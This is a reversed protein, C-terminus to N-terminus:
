LGKARHWLRTMILVSFLITGVGMIALVWTRWGPTEGTVPLSKAAYSSATRTGSLNDASLSVTNIPEGSPDTAITFISFEFTEGAELRDLTLKVQQGNIEVLGRSKEVRDIHLGQPVDDIFVLNIGPDKGQNAVTIIWQIQNTSGAQGQIVFGLKRLDPVFENGESSPNNTSSIFSANSSIQDDNDKSNAEPTKTTYGAQVMGSVIGVRLSPKPQLNAAPRKIVVEISSETQAPVTGLYWVHINDFLPLLGGLSDSVYSVDPPLDIGLAVNVAAARGNNGYTITFRRETTPSATFAPNIKVYLDAPRVTLKTAAGGRVDPDSQSIALVSVSSIDPNQDASPVVIPVQVLTLVGSDLTVQTPINTTDVWNGEEGQGVVLDYTATSQGTNEVRFELTLKQDPRVERDPPATVNVSDNLVGQAAFANVIALKPATVDGCTDPITGAIAYKILCLAAPKNTEWTPEIQDAPLEFGAENRANPPSYKPPLEITFVPINFTSYVWDDFTGGVVTDYLCCSQVRHYQDSSNSKGYNLISVLFNAMTTIRQDGIPDTKYGFPHLVLQSYSHYSLAASFSVQSMLNQIAQTESESFPYPGKFEISDCSSSFNENSLQDWDPQPPAGYNRNIDVGVAPGGVGGQMACYMRMDQNLNRNKRWDRHPHPKYPDNIKDDIQSYEYGDPNTVPVIWIESSDVLAKVEDCSDYNALLYDALHLPIEASIWERAHHTGVFLIGPEGEPQDVNDSIKLAVINNDKGETKPALTVVSALVPYRNAYDRLQGEIDQYSKYQNFTYDALKCYRISPNNVKVSFYIWANGDCDFGLFNCGYDDGFTSIESSCAGQAGGSILCNPLSLTLNLNLGGGNYIDVHDDDGNFLGDRDWLQIELSLTDIYPRTIWFDWNVFTFDNYPSETEFSRWDNVDIIGNKDVDPVGKPIQGDITVIPYYDSHTGDADSNTIESLRDVHLEIDIMNINQADVARPPLINLTLLVALVYFIRKSNNM